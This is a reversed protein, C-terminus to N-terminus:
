ETEGWCPEALLLADDELESRNIADYKADVEAWPRLRLTVKDGPRWGAAPTPKNDRMSWVFVVAEKGAAAPDEEAELGGLHVMIVHDKYPVSGPRPAPSAAKVVGRVLVPSGTAPVYAGGDQPQEDTAAAQAAATALPIIKWDGCALERAAFEWIVVQKGALRDAGRELDLALMERTAHSGADNRTITDVPLGLALSLREALGATEGWGMPALSYINAFSDGLFLVTADRDPRWASAGDRVERVTVTEPPFVNWAEPFELMMAIDGRGTVERPASTFREPAPPPLHVAERVFAALAEGVLEMGAPTWHTDTELYLPEAAAAKAEVLLPAPDFCPVGERSLRDKFAAFSPNQVPGSRGDYRASHWEPYISPKVPAPVVVLAIGRRQLQDRFDVIAKVPDPQPPAKLESGGAARAALVDPELFGRGTLSDIDKRYFLRGDRGCYADENGGRFWATVPVQMRPIVSQMVEDRDKLDTEYRQIDRLMRNNLRSGAALFGGKANAVDAIEARSPLLFSFVDLSQPLRRGPEKGACIAAVERALQVLPVTLIVALFFLTLFWDIARTSDTHGIEIKAIEERSLNKPTPQTM